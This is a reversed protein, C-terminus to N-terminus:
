EGHVPCGDLLKRQGNIYDQLMDLVKVPETEDTELRSHINNGIFTELQLNIKM